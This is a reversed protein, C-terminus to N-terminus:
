APTPDGSPRVPQLHKSLVDRLQEIHIPKALYDDCGADLCETRDCKLAHATLAIVPTQIQKQRLSRTFDLGNMNPMQIDTLIVDFSQATAKQLAQAGDPVLTADLGLEKLMTNMLIQNSRSDEAVLVRGTLAPADAPKANPKQWHDIDLTDPLSDHDINLGTPILLSFVSGVETKSQLTITGGLLETLRRTITLGLGTGGFCRTTTNDAQRFPEFIMEQKDPPIGAGTDEVDFRVAPLHAYRDLSVRLHVHGTSTFKIANSVLNVLCQRLRVPDTKIVAPLKGTQVVRYEIQKKEAEAKMLSHLYGLLENLPCDTNEVTIRDAEIKSLDLIDHILDLLNRGAKTIIEAYEAQEASLDTRSLIDSFGIVANMPTRIEHSMNALFESKARNAADAQRALTNAREVTNELQRNISAIEAKAREANEKAETLTQEAHKRQTIDVFIGNAYEVGDRSSTAISRDHLWIWRGDKRRIRYEIDLPTGQTFLATFAATVQDRHEPHIQGLWLNRGERYIEEPTYGYVTEVNPGIYVTNGQADTRWVVDPINNILSRYKGRSKRLKKEIHRRERIHRRMRLVTLGGVICLFVLLLVITGGGLAAMGRQEALRSELHRRAAKTVKVATSRCLQRQEHYDDSALLAQAAQLDAQAVLKLAQHETDLRQQYARCFEAWYSSVPQGMQVLDARDGANNLESEFREYQRQGYPQGTDAAICASLSLLEDLHCIIGTLQAVELNNDESVKFYTYLHPACIALGIIIPVALLLPLAHSKLFLWTDRALWGPPGKALSRSRRNQKHM